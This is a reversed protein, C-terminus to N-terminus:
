VEPTWVPYENGATGTLTLRYWSDTTPNYVLGRAENVKTTADLAANEEAAEQAAAALEAAANHDISAFWSADATVDAAILFWLVGPMDAQKVKLGGVQIQGATYSEPDKRAAANGVTVSGQATVKAAIAANIADNAPLNLVKVRRDRGQSDVYYIYGESDPEIDELLDLITAM